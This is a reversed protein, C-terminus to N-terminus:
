KRANPQACPEVPFQCLEGLPLQAGDPMAYYVRRVGYPNLVVRVECTGGSHLFNLDLPILWGPGDATLIGIPYEWIVEDGVPVRKAPKGLCARIAKGSRGILVRQAIQDTEAARAGAVVSIAAAAVALGVGIKGRM